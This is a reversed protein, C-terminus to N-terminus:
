IFNRVGCFRFFIFHVYLLSTFFIVSSLFNDFSNLSVSSFQIFCAFGQLTHVLYETNGIITKAKQHLTQIPHHDRIGATIDNAQINILGTNKLFALDVFFQADFPKAIHLYSVNARTYFFTINIELFCAPNPVRRNSRLRARRTMYCLTFSEAENRWFEEKLPVEKVRRENLSLYSFKLYIDEFIHKGPM